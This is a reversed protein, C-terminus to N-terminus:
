SEFVMWIGLTKPKQSLGAPVDLAFSITDGDAFATAYGDNVGRKNGTTITVTSLATTNNNYPTLTVTGCVIAQKLRLRVKRLTMAEDIDIDHWETEPINRLFGHVSFPIKTTGGSGAGAANGDLGDLGQIGAGTAGTAGVAGSAGPTGMGDLGDIGGPGTAGTVGQDGTVGQPGTAGTPGTGGVGDLGHLGEPGTAGTAGLDGTVGQTGTVGQPGTAGASGPVGEM